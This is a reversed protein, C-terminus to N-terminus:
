PRRNRELVRPPWRRGICPIVRVVDERHIEEIVAQVWQRSADGGYWCPAHVFADLDFVREWTARVQMRLADDMRDYNPHADWEADEAETFYVPGRNLVMHWAQFDSCLVRAAAIRLEICVFPTGLPWRASEEWLSLRPRAWAWIPWAGGYELIRKAMQERMWEYSEVFCPEVHAHYADDRRIRGAARLMRWDAWPQVTWIVISHDSSSM